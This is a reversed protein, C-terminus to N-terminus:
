VTGNKERGKELSGKCAGHAKGKEGETKKQECGGLSPCHREWEATESNGKEKTHILSTPREEIKGDGTRGTWRAATVFL